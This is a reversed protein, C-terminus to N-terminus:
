KGFLGKLADGAGKIGNKMADKAKGGINGGAGGVADGVSKLITKAKGSIDSLGLASLDVSGAATNASKTIASIIKDVVEAPSAGKSDKGIDKIHIDPLATTLTKGAMIAASVNVKGGKIYLHNIIVKPGSDGSAGKSSRTAPQSGGSTGGMSKAINNQLVSINSGNSGIEYTIEPARIIVEDIVILDMTWDKSIKVSIEGLSIAHDTKFGTPNGVTLGRISAKLDSLSLDVGAVKVPVQTISTGQDEIVAQIIKPANQKLYLLGGAFVVALVGLGIVIKKM